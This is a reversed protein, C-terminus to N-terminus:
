RASGVGKVIRRPSNWMIIGICTLIGVGVQSNFIDSNIWSETDTICFGQVVLLRCLEKIFRITAKDFYQVCLDHDGM